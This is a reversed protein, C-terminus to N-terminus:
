KKYDKRVNTGILGIELLRSIYIYKQTTNEMVIVEYFKVKNMIKLFTVNIATYYKKINM